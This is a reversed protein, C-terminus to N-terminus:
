GSIPVGALFRALAKKTTRHNVLLGHPARVVLHDDDAALLTEAVM